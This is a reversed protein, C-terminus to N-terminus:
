RLFDLEGEVLKEAIRRSDPNYTGEQVQTRLAEVRDVRIDPSEAAVKAAEAVLKSESSVSVRDGSSTAQGKAKAKAKEAKSTAESGESKDVKSQVYPNVGGLVKKIDM